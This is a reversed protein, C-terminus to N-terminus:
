EIPSTVNFKDDVFINQTGSDSHELPFRQIELDHAMDPIMIPLTDAFIRYDLKNEM